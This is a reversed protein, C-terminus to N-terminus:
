ESLLIKPVLRVAGSLRDFTCGATLVHLLVHSFATPAHHAAEALDTESAPAAMVVTVGGSGAVMLRADDEWIAATDEDVGLGIRGPAAAIAYLLRGLRDRQRFHQDFIVRQSFGFGPLFQAMGARPTAGGKGYAVMVGTLIAAGASTGGVIVGRQYAALLDALLATGDLASMLRMQNGGAIFVGTAARLVARREASDCEARPTAKLTQANQAGLELFLHEYYDGTDALASAQPLIVIQANTGGARRVFDRLVQPNKPNIAGGIAILTTM